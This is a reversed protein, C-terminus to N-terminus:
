VIRQIRRHTEEISYPWTQLFQITKLRGIQMLEEKQEDELAFQTASYQEVPIFIIDKEDKRSIYRDDHANKMTSFLGEFLNLANGIERGRMEEKRHSLKMGILPRVREGNEEDFIWMPFNSLVGGDVVITEGTPAKFRVPEFFFPITCSMRIARAIPFMGPEIGYHILDDPLVIMKGHTLDSAVIKLSGEPLDSFNYLGKVSLKEFLWDELAQGQYLGMRWYLRLWKMFPFPLITKRPDLLTQLDEDQMMEEIENGTYGAAIFCAIIAGASTGAVRKFRYGKEELAQYAGVLAFGKLGGGAFVGDIFM